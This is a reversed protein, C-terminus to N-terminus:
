SPGSDAVAWLQFLDSDGPDYSFTGIRRVTFPSKWLLSIQDPSPGFLIERSGDLRDLVLIEPLESTTGDSYRLLKVAAKSAEIDVSPYTGPPLTALSASGVEPLSDRYALVRLPKSEPQAIASPQLSILSIETEKLVKQLGPNNPNRKPLYPWDWGRYPGTVRKFGGDEVRYLIFADSTGGWAIHGIRLIDLILAHGQEDQVVEAVGSTGARFCGRIQWPVPKGVQDWLLVTLETDYGGSSDAHPTIILLEPRGDGDLDGSYISCGSIPTFDIEAKWHSGDQAVGHLHIADEYIELSTAGLSAKQGEPECESLLRLPFANRLVRDVPTPSDPSEALTPNQALGSHSFALLTAAL